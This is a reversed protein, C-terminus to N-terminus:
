PIFVRSKEDTQIKKATELVKELVSIIIDLKDLYQSHDLKGRWYLDLDLKKDTIYVKM